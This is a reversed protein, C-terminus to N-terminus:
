AGPTASEPQYLAMFNAITQKTKESQLTEKVREIFDAETNAKIGTSDGYVWITLPYPASVIHGVKFLMFRYDDLMPVVLEFLHNFWGGDMVTRVNAVVLHNTKRGLKSAQERLIM